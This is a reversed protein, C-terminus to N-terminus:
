AVVPPGTDGGSEGVNNGSTSAVNNVVDTTGVLAATGGAIMIGGGLGEGGYKGGVAFSFTVLTDAIVATGLTFVGGGEGNGGARAGRATNAAIFCDSLNLSSSADNQIGGGTGDGGTGRSSGKGGAGGSATNATISTGTITLFSGSLNAIGGGTGDGGSAGPAGQANGGRGGTASNGSILGGQIAVTSGASWIAGGSASGSTGNTSSGARAANGVFTTGAINLEDQNTAIAGGEAFAASGATGAASNNSFVSNTITAEGPNGPDTAGNGDVVIAGGSAFALSGNGEAKNNLFQSSAISLQDPNGDIAGGAGSIAGIAANGAFTSGTITLTSGAGMQIAGGQASAGQADNGNFTTSMITVAGDVSCIAGGQSLAGSNTDAAFGVSNGTFTDSDLSLSADYGGANYIAGGAASGGPAQNNKLVCNSISLSDLNLIGGGDGYGNNSANGDAITIGSISVTDPVYAAAVPSGPPEDGNLVFDTFNGGGSVTLKNSGPGSLTLNIGSVLLPGSTLTITGYASKAFNIVEGSTAGAIAARLSGSGSDNRNTVTVVSSLLTRPELTDVGPRLRRRASFYSASRKCAAPRSQEFQHGDTGPRATNRRFVM